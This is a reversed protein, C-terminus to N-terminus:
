LYDMFSPISVDARSCSHLWGLSECLEALVNLRMFFAQEGVLRDKLIFFRQLKNSDITAADNLKCVTEHEGDM